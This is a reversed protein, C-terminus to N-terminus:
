DAGEDWCHRDDQIKKKQKMWEPWRRTNLQTRIQESELLNTDRILDENSPVAALVLQDSRKMLDGVSAGDFM